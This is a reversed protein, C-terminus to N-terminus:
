NMYNLPNVPRWSDGDKISVEYHVHDGTSFGTNGMVGVPIGALITSGDTVLTQNFHIFKIKFELDHSVVEVTQGGYSDAYYHVTGSIPSFIVVKGTQKYTQSEKFYTYNPVMDIAPHQKGFRLYYDGDMYYATITVYSTGAGGFPNKHPVSTDGFSEDRSIGLSNEVTQGFVSHIMGGGIFIPTMVITGVVILLLLFIIATTLAMGLIPKKLYAIVTEPIPFPIILRFVSSIIRDIFVDSVKGKSQILHLPTASLKM